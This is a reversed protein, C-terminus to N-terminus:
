KPYKTVRLTAKKHLPCNLEINNWWDQNLICGIYSGIGNM